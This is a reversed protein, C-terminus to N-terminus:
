AFLCWKDYVHICVHISPHMHSYIHICAIMYTQICAHMYLHVDPQTQICAHMYLHVDLQTDQSDTHMSYWVEDLYLHVRLQMEAPIERIQMFKNIKDRTANFEASALDFNHLINVIEGFLYM